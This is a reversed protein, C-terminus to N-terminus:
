SWYFIKQDDQSIAAFGGVTIRDKNGKVDTVAHLVNGGHFILMDGVGPRVHRKPCKELSEKIQPDQRYAESFTSKAKILNELPLDYLLLDGGEEAHDIVIFYSLSNATKAIQNLHEYAPDGLFEDGIHVRMGGSGPLVFRVTAPTYVEDSSKRPLEVTRGGSIKSFVGEIRAEYETEFLQNVEKRFAAAEQFYRTTDSGQAILVNGILRGYHVPNVVTQENELAHKVNQTVKLMEEKSFVGKIVIGELEGQYIQNFGDPYSNAVLELDVTVWKKSTVVSTMADREEKVHASKVMDM